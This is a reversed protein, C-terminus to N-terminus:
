ESSSNAKVSSFGSSPAEPTRLYVVSSLPITDTTDDNERGEESLLRSMGEM